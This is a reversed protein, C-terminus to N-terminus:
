DREKAVSSGESSISLLFSYTPTLCLDWCISLMYDEFIMSCNSFVFSGSSQRKKCGWWSWQYDAHSVKCSKITKKYLLLSLPKCGRCNGLSSKSYLGRLRYLYDDTYVMFCRILYFNVSLSQKWWTIFRLLSQFLCSFLSLLTTQFILLNM